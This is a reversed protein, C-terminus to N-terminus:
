PAAEPLEFCRLAHAALSIAIWRGASRAAVLLPGMEVLDEAVADLRLRREDGQPSRAVVEEALTFVIGGFHPLLM